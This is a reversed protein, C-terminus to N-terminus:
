QRENVVDAAGVAVVGDVHIYGFVMVVHQTIACPLQEELLLRFHEGHLFLLFPYGLVGTHSKAAVCEEGEAVIDLTGM